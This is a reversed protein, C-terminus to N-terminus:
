STRLQLAPYETSALVVAAFPADEITATPQRVPRKGRQNEQTAPFWQRLSESRRHPFGSEGLRPGAALSARHVLGAAIESPRRDPACGAYPPDAPAIRARRRNSSRRQAEDSLLAPTGRAHKPPSSGPM